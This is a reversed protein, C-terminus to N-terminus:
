FRTAAVSGCDVLGWDVLRVSGSSAVSGSGIVSGSGTV